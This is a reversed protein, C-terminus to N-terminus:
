WGVMFYKIKATEPIQVAEIKTNIDFRLEPPLQDKSITYFTNNENIFIVINNLTNQISSINYNNQLDGFTSLTTIGKKTKFRSDIIKITKITATSDLAQTPTLSLLHNGGKEFIEIDNIRGTFEDGAITKVISDKIFVAELDKVQTSDTLLGINQKSILFTDVEKTCSTLLISLTLLTFILKKM